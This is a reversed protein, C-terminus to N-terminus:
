LKVEKKIGLKKAVYDALPWMDKLAEKEFPQQEYPLHTVPQGFYLTGNV